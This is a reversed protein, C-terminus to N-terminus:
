YRILECYQSAKQVYGLRAELIRVGLANLKLDSKNKMEAWVKYDKRIWACVTPLYKREDFQLSVLVEPSPLLRDNVSSYLAAGLFAEELSMQSSALLEPLEVNLVDFEAQASEYYEGFSYNNFIAEKIKKKFSAYSNFRTIKSYPGEGTVQKQLLRLYTPALIDTFLNFEYEGMLIYMFEPRHNQRMMQNVPENLLVTTLMQSSVSTRHQLELGLLYLAEHLILLAENIVVHEPSHIAKMHSWLKKDADIFGLPLEGNQSQQYRTILQVYKCEPKIDLFGMDNIISMRAPMGARNLHENWKQPEVWDLAAFINEVLLPSLSNYKEFLIRRLFTMANEDPRPKFFVKTIDTESSARGHFFEYSSLFTIQSIASDKILGAGDLAARAAEADKFCAVGGGGTGNWGGNSKLTKIDFNKRVNNKLDLTIPQASNLKLKLDESLPLKPAQFNKISVVPPTQATQAVLNGAQFLIIFILFITNLRKM